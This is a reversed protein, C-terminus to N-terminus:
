IGLDRLDGKRFQKKIFKVDVACDTNINSQSPSIHLEQESAPDQKPFKNPANEISNHPFAQAQQLPLSASSLAISLVM